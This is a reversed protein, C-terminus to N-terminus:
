CRTDIFVFAIKGPILSRLSPPLWAPQRMLMSVESAQCMVWCSGMKLMVQESVENFQSFDVIGFELDAKEAVKRERLDM